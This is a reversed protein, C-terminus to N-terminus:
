FYEHVIVLGAGGVGGAKAAGDTDAGGSAGGGYLGGASGAATGSAANNNNAGGGWRSDGGGGGVANAAIGFRLGMRGASGTVNLDGGSGVGGAGSTGGPLDASGSANAGGGAGGTASCHSGFSSTGGVGGTTPTGAGATGGAGVTVTETSGLSGVLIKKLSYGGGGGGGGGSAAGSASAAGGGGGGAGVVEVIVFKLGTLKTWTNSSTFATPGGYVGKAAGLGEQIATLKMTGDDDHSVDLVDAVNDGWQTTPKIIIIDGVESGGDTYGPAIDDIELNSGDVHGSFDVATDESIVTITESTIPDTFTHPTGMSAFFTDNIGAITDVNITSSLAARSSQVTAINANGSGDSARIQDISAM